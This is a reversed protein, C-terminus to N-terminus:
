GRIVYLHSRVPETLLPFKGSTVWSSLPLALRYVWAQRIESALLYKHIFFHTPAPPLPKDMSVYFLGRGAM